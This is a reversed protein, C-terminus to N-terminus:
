LKLLLDNYMRVLDGRIIADDTKSILNQLEILVSYINTDQASKETRKSGQLFFPEKSVTSGIPQNTTVEKM